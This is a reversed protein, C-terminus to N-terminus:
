VTIEPPNIMSCVNPQFFATTPRPKVSTTTQEAKATAKEQGLPSARGRPKQVQGNGVPLM